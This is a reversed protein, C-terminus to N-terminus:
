DTRNTELAEVITVDDRLQVYEGFFVTSAPNFDNPLFPADEPKEPSEAEWEHANSVPTENEDEVLETITEHYQEYKADISYLRRYYMGKEADIREDDVMVRVHINGYQFPGVSLEVVVNEALREQAFDGRIRGEKVGQMFNTLAEM